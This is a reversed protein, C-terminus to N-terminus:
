KFLDSHSGTREFVILREEFDYYYILLWDSNPGGLHIEWRKPVRNTPQLSHLRYDKSLQKEDVLLTMADDLLAM